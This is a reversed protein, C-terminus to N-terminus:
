HRWSERPQKPRDRAAQRIMQTLTMPRPKRSQREQQRTAEAHHQSCLRRGTQEVLMTGCGDPWECRVLTM